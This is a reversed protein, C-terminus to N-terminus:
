RWRRRIGAPRNVDLALALLLTGAWVNVPAFRLPEHDGINNAVFWVVFWILTMTVEKTQSRGRSHRKVLDAHPTM